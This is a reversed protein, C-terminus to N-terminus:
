PSHVRPMNRRRSTVRGRRGRGGRQAPLLARAQARGESVGMFIDLIHDRGMATPPTSRGCGHARVLRQRRKGLRMRRQKRIELLAKGLHCVRGDVGDAFLDLGVLADVDAVVAVEQFGRRLVAAHDFQVRGYEGGFFQLADAAQAVRVEAHAGDRQEIGPRLPQLAGKFFQEGAQSRAQRSPAFM